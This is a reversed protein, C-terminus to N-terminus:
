RLSCQSSNWQLQHVDWPGWKIYFFFRCFLTVKCMKKGRILKAFNQVNRKWVGCFLIEVSFILAKWPACGGLTHASIIMFLINLFLSLVDFRWSQMLIAYSVTCYPPKTMAHKGQIQCMTHSWPCRAVKRHFYKLTNKSYSIFFRM